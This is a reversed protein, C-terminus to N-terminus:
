MYFHIEILNIKYIYKMYIKIEYQKLIFFQSVFLIHVFAKIKYKKSNWSGTIWLIKGVNPGLDPFVMSVTLPANRSVPFRCSTVTPDDAQLIWLHTSERYTISPGRGESMTGPNGGGAQRGGHQGTLRRRVLKGGLLRHLQRHVAHLAM